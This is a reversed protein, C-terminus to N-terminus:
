SEGFNSPPLLHLLVIGSLFINTLLISEKNLYIITKTFTKSEQFLSLIQILLFDMLLFLIKLLDIFIGNFILSNMGCPFAVEEPDLITNDVAKIWGM